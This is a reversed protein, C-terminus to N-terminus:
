LDADDIDIFNEHEGEVVGGTRVATTGSARISCDDTGASEEGLKQVGGEHHARM